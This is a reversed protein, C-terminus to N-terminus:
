HINKNKRKDLDITKAIVLVKIQKPKGKKVLEICRLITSGTTYIDDVILVKKDKIQNINNAYINKNVKLRDKHSKDSQKERNIKKLISLMPLNLNEYIAVVHNFGRKLDDVESSPAPILVYDHYRLRLYHVYRYLFVDKLEYDYCGKFQYILQRISENYQYIATATIAGIKFDIFKADLKELCKQCIFNNNSM